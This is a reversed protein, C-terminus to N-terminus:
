KKILIIEHCHSYKGGSDEMEGDQEYDNPEQSDDIVEENDPIDEDPFTFSQKFITANRLKVTNM